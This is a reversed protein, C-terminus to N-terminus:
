APALSSDNLAAKEFFNTAAGNKKKKWKLVKFLLKLKIEIFKVESVVQTFKPPVAFQTRLAACFLM